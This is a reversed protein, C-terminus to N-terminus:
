PGIIVMICLAIVTGSLVLAFVSGLIKLTKDDELKKSIELFWKERNGHLLSKKLAGPLLIYPLM